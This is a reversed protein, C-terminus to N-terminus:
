DVTAVKQVIVFATLMTALYVCIDFADGIHPPLYVQATEFAIATTVMLVWALVRVGRKSPQDATIISAAFCGGIWTFIIAKYVLTTLASFEAQYYYGAMPWGLFRDWRESLERSDHIFRESTWVLTLMLIASSLSALLFWFASRRLIPSVLSRSHYLLVAVMGGTASVMAHFLSATRTFVPVQILECLIAFGLSYVVATKVGRSFCLLLALPVVRLISLVVPKIQQSPDDFGPVLELRGLAAKEKLEPLSVVLDLPLAAFGLNAVAYLMAAHWLRERSKGLQLIKSITELTWRGTVLWVVPGVVAGLCGAAVDNLSQTRPPFWAQLFEIGAVLFCLLVILFPMFLILLRQSKRRWDIAAAGLWGLPLVVLCNAVWDARGYLQINLWPLNEFANKADEFSCQRYQVPLISAYVLLLISGLFALMFLCRQREDPSLQLVKM